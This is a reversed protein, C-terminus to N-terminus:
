GHYSLNLALAAVALSFFMAWGGFHYDRARLHAGFAVLFYLVLGGAALAGLVPVAFGALLGLAGLALLVGFPRMTSHPLGMKDAQSRPYDHGVLNAVAAFANTVSALLTVALYAAFM